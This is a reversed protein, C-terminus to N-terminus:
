VELISNQIFSCPNLTDSRKHRRSLGCREPLTLSALAVAFSLRSEPLPRKAPARWSAMALDTV